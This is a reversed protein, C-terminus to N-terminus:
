MYKVTHSDCSWIGNSDENGVAVALIIVNRNMLPCVLENRHDDPCMISVIETTAAEREDTSGTNSKRKAKPCGPPPRNRRATVLRLHTLHLTFAIYVSTTACTKDALRRALFVVLGDPSALASVASHTPSHSHSHSHTLTHSHSGLRPRSLM